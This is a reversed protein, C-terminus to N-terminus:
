GALRVDPVHIAPERDRVPQAGLTGIVQQRRRARIAHRRDDRLTIGAPIADAAATPNLGFVIGEVGICARRRCRDHCGDLVQLRRHEIRTTGHQPVPPQVSRTGRLALHRQHPLPLARDNAATGAMRRPHMDVIRRAGGHKGHLLTRVADEVDDVVFRCRGHSAADTPAL